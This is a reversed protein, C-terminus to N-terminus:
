AFRVAMLGSRRMQHYLEYCYVRERYVPDANWVPLRFYESAIAATAQELIQTLEDM